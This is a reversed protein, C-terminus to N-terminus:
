SRTRTDILRGAIRATVDQHPVGQLFIEEWFRLGLMLWLMFYHWRLLPSPPHNLVAQVFDWRLVGLHEVVDRTLEAKVLGALDKRFQHYPNFTFGWKRKQLIAEPVRGALALKLLDKRRGEPFRVSLPVSRIWRVFELDLFPVRVELGHASSVKDENHLFDDIMKLNLECRLASDVWDRGQPFYPELLDSLAPPNAGLFRPHYVRNMFAASEDWGNRLVAYCRGGRDLDSLVSLGRRMNEFRLGFLAQGIQSLGRAVPNLAGHIARPMMQSLAHFMRLYAHVDYGVFLEDGGLGSLAVKVHERAFRALYYGQPSNVKPEELHWLVEPYISLPSPDLTMEHHDTDFRDAVIRADFLEDTPEGFGLSFTALRGPVRRSASEVIASSDLGGSLYAGLPVDSVLQRDVAADFHHRVGELVDGAPPGATDADGWTWYSELRQSSSDAILMQGQPLKFVDQFLTRPAPVFRLNLLHHLAVDDRRPMLGPHALLSKVESAFLLTGQVRTYYLPKVGLPDRVLLLRQRKRDWLAFAFIGNLRKPFSDGHQEYLHVLVETDTRSRFIHGAQRLEKRLERFNYIEGNFVVLVSRDENFIPQDGGDVDIISLRRHGLGVPGEGFFGEADPGRHEIRRTMSRLLDPDGTGLYGCIGCM